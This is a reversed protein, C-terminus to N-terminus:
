PKAANADGKVPAIAATEPKLHVSMQFSVGPITGFKHEDVFSLEAHDVYPSQNLLLMTQGVQTANAAYGQVSLVPAPGSAVGPADGLLASGTNSSITNVWATASLSNALAFVNNYWFMTDNKAGDLMALRPTLVATEQQLNQIRTVRPQLKSYQDVLDSLRGNAAVLRISLISAVILVLGIEGLVGYALKRTNNEQRRKQARRAAIMNISPM